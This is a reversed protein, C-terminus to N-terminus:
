DENGRFHLMGREPVETRHSAPLAWLRDQGAILPGIRDRHLLGQCCPRSQPLSVTLYDVTATTVCSDASGRTQRVRRWPAGDSSTIAVRNGTKM